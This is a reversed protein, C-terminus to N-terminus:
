FEEVNSFILEKLEAKTPIISDFDFEEDNCEIVEGDSLVGRFTNRSSTIETFYAETEFRKGNISFDTLVCLHIFVMKELEYDIDKIECSFSYAKTVAFMNVFLTDKRKLVRFKLSNEIIERRKENKM